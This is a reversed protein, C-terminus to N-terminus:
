ANEQPWAEAALRRAHDRLDVPWPESLNLFREREGAYLARSTEEYGPQNGLMASMFRDARAAAKRRLEKAGGTQRAADVLRRLTVSAGGPQAALWDWQRPLLTVERSVVGLKPRGVARRPPVPRLRAAIEEDSGSLNFDLQRGTEDDFILVRGEEQGRRMALAVEVPDGSALLREGIFATVTEM